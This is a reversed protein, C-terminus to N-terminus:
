TLGIVPIDFPVDFRASLVLTAVGIMLVAVGLFVLLNWLENRVGGRYYHRPRQDDAGPTM